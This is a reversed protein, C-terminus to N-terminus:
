FKPGRARACPQRALGCELSGGRQPAAVQAVGESGPSAIVHPAGAQELAFAAASQSAPEGPARIREQAAREAAQERESAAEPAPDAGQALAELEAAQRAAVARRGALPLPDQSKVGWHSSPPRRAPAAALEASPKWRATEGPFDILHCLLFSGRRLDEISPLAERGVPRGLAAFLFDRRFTNSREPQNLPTFHILRSAARCETDGAKRDGTQSAAEEQIKVADRLRLPETERVSSMVAVGTEMWAIISGLPGIIRLREQMPRDAAARKWSLRASLAGAGAEVAYADPAGFDKRMWVPEGGFRSDLFSLLDAQETLREMAVHKALGQHAPPTSEFDIEIREVGGLRAGWEPLKAKVDLYGPDARRAHDCVLTLGWRSANQLSGELKAREVLGQAWPSPCFVHKGASTARLLEQPRTQAELASFFVAIVKPDRLAQELTDEERAGACLPNETKQTKWLTDEPREGVAWLVRATIGEQEQIREFAALHLAIAGNGLGALAVGVEQSAASNPEARGGTNESTNQM